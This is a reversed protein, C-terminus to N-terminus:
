NSMVHCSARMAPVELDGNGCHLLNGRRSALSFALICSMVHGGFGLNSYTGLSEEAKMKMDGDASRLSWRTTGPPEPPASSAGFTCGTSACPGLPATSQVCLLLGLVPWLARCQSFEPQGPYHGRIGMWSGLWAARAAEAARSPHPKGGRTTTASQPRQSTLATM